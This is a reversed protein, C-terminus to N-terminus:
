DISEVKDEERREKSWLYLEEVDKRAWEHARLFILSSKITPHTKFCNINVFWSLKERGYREVLYTLIDKLTIWHLPNNPQPHM